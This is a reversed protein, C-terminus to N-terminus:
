LFSHLSGPQCSLIFYFVHQVSEVYRFVLVLHNSVHTAAVDSYVLGVRMEPSFAASFLKLYTNNREFCFYKKGFCIENYCQAVRSSSLCLEFLMATPKFYNVYLFCTNILSGGLCVWNGTHRTKGETHSHTM